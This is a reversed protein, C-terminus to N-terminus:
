PQALVSPEYNVLVKFSVRVPLIYETEEPFKVPKQVTQVSYAVTNGAQVSPYVEFRFLM